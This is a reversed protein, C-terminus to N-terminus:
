SGDNGRRGGSVSVLRSSQPLIARVQAQERAPWLHLKKNNLWVTGQTPALEDSLVKLLTSQRRWKAGVALVQGPLDLVRWGTLNQRLRCM